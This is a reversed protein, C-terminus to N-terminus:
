MREPIPIGLLGVALELEGLVLQAISIRSLRISADSEPLVPCQQYFRNFDQALLYTFEAITHPTRGRAAETLVEPLRLATLLLSREAPHLLGIVPRADQEKWGQEALKRFISQIRVATYILYPGTKGEFRVFKDLDFAYDSLRHNSLDAFKIAAVAVQRAIAEQEEPPYDRAVGSEGMRERAKEITQTLLEELRQANGERTKFPKGDPGNVTGFGIHEVTIEPPLIGTQKAAQFLQTFHLGQRQDVVYLVARAHDEHIREDLAALDTTSYLYAGDSKRLLFPPLDKGNVPSLPIILAGDSEVAHKEAQLRSLLGPIRDHYHSEGYWWDFYIGLEAFTHRLAQVSVEVFHRWLARYGPRGNQLDATAQLAQNRFAEDEKFLTAGAPYLRELDSLSVPSEAPYEGAFTEAFYPLEPQEKQVMVILIGMPTGWDGLHIDSYVPHGLYRFLRQLSEGIVASRLHGVHLPKAVNPGGFDLVMKPPEPLVEVGYRGDRLAEVAFDAIATDTVRINIFGPGAVALEQIETYRAGIQGIVAQAIEAAPRGATRAAALAGNCQFDGYETRESRFVEGYQPDYGLESFASRFIASLTRHLTPM